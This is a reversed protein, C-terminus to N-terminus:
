NGRFELDIEIRLARLFDEMVRQRPEAMQRGTATKM